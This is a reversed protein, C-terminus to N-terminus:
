RGRAQPAIGAWMVERGTGAQYLTVEALRGGKALPHRVAIGGKPRGLLSIARLLSTTPM